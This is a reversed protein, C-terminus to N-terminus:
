VEIGEMRKILRVKDDKSKSEVAILRPILKSKWHMLVENIRDIDIDDKNPDYVERLDIAFTFERGGADLTVLVIKDDVILETKKIKVRMM